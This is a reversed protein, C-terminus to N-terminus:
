NFFSFYILYIFKSEQNKPDAAGVPIGMNQPQPITQQIPGQFQSPTILNIGPNMSGMFPVGAPNIVQDPLQSM